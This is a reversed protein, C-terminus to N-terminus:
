SIYQLQINVSVSGGLSTETSSIRLVFRPALCPLRCSAFSLMGLGGSRKEATAESSEIVTAADAGNM